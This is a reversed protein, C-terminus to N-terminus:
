IPGFDESMTPTKGGRPSPEPSDSGLATGQLRSSYRQLSRLSSKVNEEYRIKRVADPWNYVRWQNPPVPDKSNWPQHFLYGRRGAENWDFLNETKDDILIDADVSAKNEGNSLLAVGSFTLYDNQLFSLWDLTDHVAEKPRHTVVYLEHGDSQLRQLGSIADKLTHGYRFLGQKVGQTWMWEHDEKKGYGEQWDWRNWETIPPMYVGRYVAIMYRYCGQFDYITGDLDLAIRV